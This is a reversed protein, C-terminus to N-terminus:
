AQGDPPPHEAPVQVHGPPPVYQLPVHTSVCVLREFQPAHPTSQLALSLAAPNGDSGSMVFFAAHVAPRHWALMSPEAVISQLTDPLQLM